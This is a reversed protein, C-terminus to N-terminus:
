GDFPISEWVMDFGATENDEVVVGTVKGETSIGTMVVMGSSKGTSSVTFVFGVPQNGKKAAYYSVEEGNETFRKEEFTDADIVQKRLGSQTQRNIKEIRDKTVANTLALAATMAGAIVALTLASVAVERLNIGSNKVWDMVKKVMKPAEKGGSPLPRTAREILPVVNMIVIALIGRRAPATFRILVTLQGSGIAFVAKRCPKDPLHRLRDGYLGRRAYAGISYTCGPKGLAMDPCSPAWLVAPILPSIVGSLLTCGGVAPRNYLNGWPQGPRIGVPVSLQALEGGQESKRAPDGLQGDVVLSGQLPTAGQEYRGFSAMLVIRGILAPNVFNHGIGGFMQKAVVIAVVGGIAAQWLPITAPLNFALLVGTVVASLDGVTQPKKLVIRSIYESAMCSAVCVIIVAAARWGFLLVSAAAAPSLAILVDLMIERTNVGCHLHPSSSVVLKNEM